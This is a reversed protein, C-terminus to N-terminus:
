KLMEEVAGTPAWALPYGTSFRKREPDDGWWQGRRIPTRREKRGVVKLCVQIREQPPKEIRKASLGAM